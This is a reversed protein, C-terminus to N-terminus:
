KRQKDISALTKWGDKSYYAIPGSCDANPGWYVQWYYIGSRLINAPVSYSNTATCQNVVGPACNAAGACVVLRYAGAPQGAPPTYSTWSFQTPISTIINAGIAPLSKGFTGGSGGGGGGGGGGGPPPAVVRCTYCYWGAGGVDRCDGDGNGSAYDWQGSACEPATATQSGNTRLWLNPPPTAPNNGCFGNSNITDSRCTKYAIVSNSFNVIKFPIPSENNGANDTSFACVKIKSGQSGSVSIGASSSYVSYNASACSDNFNLLKLYKTEKYGSGGTDNCVGGTDNCLKIISTTKASCTFEGNTEITCGAASFTTTPADRDFTWDAQVPASAILSLCFSILLLFLLRLAPRM